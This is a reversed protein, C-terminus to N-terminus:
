FAVFNLKNLDEILTTKRMTLNYEPANSSSRYWNRIEINTFFFWVENWKMRIDRTIIIKSIKIIIIIVIFNVSSFSHKDKNINRRKNWELTTAWILWKIKYLDCFFSSSTFIMWIWIVMEYRSTFFKSFRLWRWNKKM